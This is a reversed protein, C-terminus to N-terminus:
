QGKVHSWFRSPFDKIITMRSVVKFLTHNTFSGTCLHGKSGQAM